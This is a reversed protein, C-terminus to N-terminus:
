SNIVNADRNMERKKSYIIRKVPKYTDVDREKSLLFKLFSKGQLKCTQAIGLLFLYREAGKERFAMSIKRQIAIPQINREAMNNNWDIGDYQIFTFLSERYRIFRKQFINVSESKYRTNDIYHTYFAEISKHSKQLYRKQLGYEKATQLIPVILNKVELVFRELEDNFPEKWLADNLDRIFHSWCKQQTCPIADYGAYFDSILVGTYHALLDHAITAERTETLKFIVHRGDTFVWAYYTRGQINMRTEDAHLFPSELLRQLILRETAEYKESFYYILELVTDMAIGIHFMEEATDAIVEYPLRLIIRQYVVWSIFNHGFNRRDFSAIIEPKYIRRCQDCWGKTGWYHIIAKRVGRKTFVLDTIVV